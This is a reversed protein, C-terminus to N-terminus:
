EFTNWIESTLRDIAEDIGIFDGRLRDYVSGDDQLIYMQKGWYAIAIRDLTDFQGQVVPSIM